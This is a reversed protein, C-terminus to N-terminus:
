GGMSWGSAKAKERLNDLVQRTTRLVTGGFHRELNRLGEDHAARGRVSTVADSAVTVRLGNQFADLATAFVCYDTNIGCVCVDTVGRSRLMSLLRCREGAFCSYNYKPVFTMRSGGVAAGRLEPILSAGESGAKFMTTGSGEWVWSLTSDSPSELWLRSDVVVDFLPKSSNAEGPSSSDSLVLSRINEIVEERRYSVDGVQEVSMDVVILAHKQPPRDDDSPSPLSAM